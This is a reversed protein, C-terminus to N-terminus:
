KSNELKEIREHLEKNSEILYAILGSYNVSKIGSESESVLHPLIKELQQAIVGSSKEDNAVLKYEFGNIQSITETANHIKVINKKLSEDSTANFATATITGAAFNGSADRFVITNGNNVNTANSSVTFTAATSQNATFSQSGSLGNGSVGLTLTGNNIFSSVNGSDVVTRWATLAGSNRGRIALQGTRYDGYIQHVWSSSFAQSYLAGDTQGFLSVSSIYGIGNDNITDPNVSNTSNGNRFEIGDIQSATTASAASAASGTINIGWTGSAGLGTLSPSYSTFNSSSLMVQWANWTSNIGNRLLLQAPGAANVGSQNAFALQYSSDGTSASTGDWPAYTMVGAYNGTAGTVSSANAFDFRVTRANSTPLKNGAIRDGDPSSVFTATTASAVSGSSTIYGAGNTLQNTNTVNTAGAAIGDLKTKDAASMSGAAATTAASISIAPATGGSSIIPATGTVGTVTGTNSTFGSPNTAAYAGIEALSWSVNASGDVSKGTNGITVTRATTWNDARGASIRRWTSLGNNENYRISLYPTTSDRDIAMYMGYSGAGTAPYDNGLGTYLSYFQNGGTGPGNTNGQVYRWGFGYSPTTADFGTRTSHNDGFNNWWRTADSINSISASLTGGLTITGSTTITGGTLTLGSVTGSTAVSTVTGLNATYGAGNTLQNTNTPITIVGTSNNYAGSGATFSLASRAESTTIYSSPNTSNYPTFGLATTVDGSSLTVAGTRTNFSAVGGSSGSSAATIRGQADVTLNTNTYSGATVATNALSITGTTTITGGTLGTGTGVSTVTGVNTTYGAPNTANYPTFGLATTVNSSTIESRITASSKNEVNGLGVDSSVLSVVGTKGAVSDVAGSTIYVYASGSWRYVKNTDLTVYIKGTEGTAPLSALNAAEIVDDVYSPLRAADIVGSTIKSADLNPVDAAVLTTGSTIRGKADTTVKTYTGAIVGSNALTLATSSGTSGTGTVDGTFTLSGSITATSASTIRGQADVTIVPVSTSSGYSGATVATNALAITIAASGNYSTGSLGTGISLTNAVSGASGTTNQNLTPIDAAVITRFTPTGSVGNPGALFTNASQSSFNSPTVELTGGLSLNGSSTVTGSLTLGSVTGTGGVSIVTGLNSTYGNPNSVSYPTFGLATTVDTNSLTVAGTRTNFSSVIAAGAGGISRIDNASHKYYLAGDTYNLALEGYDLDSTAPVKGTVSSKKLTIKSM